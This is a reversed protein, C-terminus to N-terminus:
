HQRRGHLPRPLPEPLLAPRSAGVRPKAESARDDEAPLRVNGPFVDAPPAGAREAAQRQWNRLLDDRVDLERATQRLPLAAARREAVRGVAKLKFEATFHRWARPAEPRKAM